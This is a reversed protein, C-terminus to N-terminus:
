RADFSSAGGVPDEASPAHASGVGAEPMPVDLSMAGHHAHGGSMADPLMGQRLGISTLGSILVIAAFVRRVRLDRVALRRAGMTVVLLAPTTAMGFVVMSLSGVWWSGSAMPIALAAYVLGCPLASTAMGFLWRGLWGEAKSLRTALRALGPIRFKPEPILGALAASFGVIAVVSITPALWTPGPLIAGFAGALAGLLAYTSLRGLHWATGGDRGACSAAFGGCMGICHPSGALGALFTATLAPFLM